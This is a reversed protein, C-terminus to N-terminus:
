KQVDFGAQATLGFQPAKARITYQGIETNLPLPVSFEAKGSEPAHRGGLRTIVNGKSDVVDVELLVGDCEKSEVTYTLTEGPTLKNKVLQIDLSTPKRPYGALLRAWRSAVPLSLQIDKGDGTRQFSIQKMTDMDILYQIEPRRLTLPVDRMQPQHNVVTIFVGAHNGRLGAEVIDVGGDQEVYATTLDPKVYEEILDRFACRLNRLAAPKAPQAECLDHFRKEIDTNITVITGKGFKAETWSFYQNRKRMAPGTPWDVKTERHTKVPVHDTILIGGHNLWDRLIPVADEHLWETRLMLLVPFDIKGKEVILEERHIDTPGFTGKLMSLTYEPRDYINEIFEHADPYYIALTSPLAPMNVLLPGCRDITRLAQGTRKWRAPRIGDAVAQRMFTNLYRAGHAVATFACEASAQRPAKRFPWDPDGLEVYFGWPINRARAIDEMASSCFGVTLMRISSPNLHAYPYVDFDAMQVHRSWEVCDQQCGLPRHYGLGHVMYTLLLDFEANSEKLLDPGAAFVKGVYLGLFDGLAWRAYPIQKAMAVDFEIGYIERFTRRCYECGCLNGPGISPEDMVKASLMRPYYNAPWIKPAIAERFSEKFGPALPCPTVKADRPFTTFQTYEFAVAMGLRQAYDAAYIKYWNQRQQRLGKTDNPDPARVTNV